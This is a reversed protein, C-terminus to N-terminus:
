FGMVYHLLLSRLDKQSKLFWEDYLNVMFSPNVQM